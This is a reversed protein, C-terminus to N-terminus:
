LLHMNEDCKPYELMTLASQPVCFVVGATVWIAIVCLCCSSNLALLLNQNPDDVVLVTLNETM